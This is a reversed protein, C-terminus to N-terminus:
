NFLVIKQVEGKIIVLYVGRPLQVEKDHGSYVLRGAMDLVYYDTEACEVYLIGNHSYVNASTIQVTEVDVKDEEKAFEATITMDEEVLVLHPNDTAGDSWRVFKYGVNAQAQVQAVNDDCSNQKTVTAFGMTADNVEVTLVLTFEAFNVFDKWGDATLYASLSGCSVKVPISKPVNYFVYDGLTPPNTAKVVLETLSSCDFFAKGGISTVSNPITISTLSSCSYFANKGISTVSNGITVSTLSECWSFAGEGIFTVSNPITISILSSCGDFAWDGISTVGDPITISTLSSCYCFASEGISTVSNPIITNKCGQILTNSSTEIIANCNDRSDYVRNGSEVVVNILESCYWFAGEGISTVSNPITISTLSICESFALYGISTVSDPVTISTLSSCSFFAGEGISTVSNPITILSLSSRDSFAYDCITTTGEKVDIHTNELMEGKYTYLMNNIYVCGDPQNNFWITGNFASYGISTVSNPITISTLSSCYAFAYDGISTVSYATGDYSIALPITINTVGLYNNESERYQYTVSATKNDSDLNYYIGDIEVSAFAMMTIFLSAILTLIRTKM